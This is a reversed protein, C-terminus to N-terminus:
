KKKNRADDKQDQVSENGLMKNALRNADAIRRGSPSPDKRSLSSMVATRSSMLDYPVMEM